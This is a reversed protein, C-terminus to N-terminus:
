RHPCNLVVLVLDADLVEGLEVGHHRIAEEM